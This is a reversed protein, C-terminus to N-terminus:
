LNHYISRSFNRPRDSLGFGIHDLAICRHTPAFARMLHRWEFSWTPTGHIFLLPAGTGEDIYHMRGAPLDMWRSEFPYASRDVPDSAGRAGRHGRSPHM